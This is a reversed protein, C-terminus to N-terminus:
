VKPKSTFTGEACVMKKPTKGIGEMVEWVSKPSLRVSQEPFVTVSKKEISCEVKAVGEVDEFRTTIKKVCGGCMEGVTMVIHNRDREAGSAAANLSLVAILVAACLCIGSRTLSLM